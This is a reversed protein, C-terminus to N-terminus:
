DRNPEFEIWRLIEELGQKEIYGTANAFMLFIQKFYTEDDGTLRSSAVSKKM